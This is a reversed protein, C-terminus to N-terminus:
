RGEARAGADATFISTWLGSPGYLEKEIRSWGGLDAMTFLQPPMPQSRPPPPVGDSVPRFGYASLIGQGKESLLFELFAEAVKRNGHSEVSSDVVAAPSEILLTRPPIVYPIPASEKGRLLLENEYTVVADGTGREAFNAMSQRGSQDM